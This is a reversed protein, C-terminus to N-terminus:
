RSTLGSKWSCGPRTRPDPNERGGPGRLEALGHVHGGFNLKPQGYLAFEVGPGYYGDSASPIAVNASVHM